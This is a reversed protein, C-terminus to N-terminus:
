NLIKSLDQTSKSILKEHDKENLDKKIKEAVELFASNIINSKIEKIAMEEEMKIRSLTSQTKKKIELELEKKSENEFKEAENKAEFIIKDGFSKSDELYKQAEALMKEAKEKMEKAALLNEVIERSKSELSNSIIPWVIKYILAAFAAFSIALWFKEDFM